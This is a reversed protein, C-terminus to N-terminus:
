DANFYNALGERTPKDFHLKTAVFEGAANRYLKYGNSVYGTYFFGGPLSSVIRATIDGFKQHHISMTQADKVKADYSSRGTRTKHVIRAQVEKLEASSLGDDNDAENAIAQLAKQNNPANRIKDFYRQVAPSDKVVEEEDKADWMSRSRGMKVEINGGGVPAAEM